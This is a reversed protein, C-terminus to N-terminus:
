DIDVVKRSNSVTDEVVEIEIGSETDTYLPM